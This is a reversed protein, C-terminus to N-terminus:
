AHAVKSACLGALLGVAARSRCVVNSLDAVKKALQCREPQSNPQTRTLDADAASGVAVGSVAM